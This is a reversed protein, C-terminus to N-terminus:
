IYVLNTSMAMLTSFNGTTQYASDTFMLLTNSTGRDCRATVVSARVRIKVAIQFTHFRLAFHLLTESFSNIVCLPHGHVVKFALGRHKNQAHLPDASQSSRHLSATYDDYCRMATHVVHAYRPRIFLVCIRSPTTSSHM